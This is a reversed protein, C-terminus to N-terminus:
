WPSYVNWLFHSYKNAKFDTGKDSLNLTIISCTLSLWHIETSQQLLKCALQLKIIMSSSIHVVTCSSSCLPLTSLKKKMPFFLHKSLFLSKKKKWNIIQTTYMERSFPFVIDYFCRLEWSFWQVRTKSLAMSVLVTVAGAFLLAEASDVTHQM